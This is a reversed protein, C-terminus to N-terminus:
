KATRREEIMDRAKRRVGDSPAVDSLAYLLDDIEKDSPFQRLKDMNDLVDRESYRGSKRNKLYDRLLEKPSNAIGRM